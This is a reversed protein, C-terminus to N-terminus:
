RNRETKGIVAEILKIVRISKRERAIDLPTRSMSEKVNLDAHNALLVEASRASDHYAAVHLPTVGDDDMINIGSHHNLLMKVIEVHDHAAAAHLATWGGNDAANVNAGANLLLKIIERKDSSAAYHLATSGNKREHINIDAEANILYRVLEIDGHVVALHLATAGGFVAQNIDSMDAFNKVRQLRETPQPLWGLRPDGLIARALPHLKGGPSRLQPSKVKQEWGIRAWIGLVPDVLFRHEIIAGRSKAGSEFQLILTSNSIRYKGSRYEGQHLLFTGDQKLTLADKNHLFVGSLTEPNYQKDGKLISEGSTDIIVGGTFKLSFAINMYNFQPGICYKGIPLVSIAPLERPTVLKALPYEHRWFSFDYDVKKEIHTLFSAISYLKYMAHLSGFVEPFEQKLLHFSKGVDDAFDADLKISNSGVEIILPYSGIYFKIDGNPDEITSIKKAKPDAAFFLNNAFNSQIGPDCKDAKEQIRQYISKVSPTSVKNLALSKLLYDAQIIVEFFSSDRIQEPFVNVVHPKSPDESNSPDLSMMISEYKGVRFAQVFQDVTIPPRGKGGVTGILFFDQEAENWHVGTIDTLGGLLYEKSNINYYQHVKIKAELDRLSVTKSILKEPEGAKFRPGAPPAYGPPYKVARPCATLVLVVAVSFILKACQM